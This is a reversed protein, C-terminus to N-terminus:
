GIQSVELVKKLDKLVNMPDTTTPYYMFLNGLPDVLYIKDKVTFQQNTQKSFVMQLRQLPIYNGGLLTVKVRESNKGLAKRVQQLFYFTKMCDKNCLGNDVYLIHWKEENGNQMAAYLYQVGIPQKVLVGHNITKLPFQEHYYYLFWGALMPLLFVLFLMVVQTVNRKKSVQMRQIM